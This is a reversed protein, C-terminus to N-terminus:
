TAKKVRFLDFNPEERPTEVRMDPTFEEESREEVDWATDYDFGHNKSKNKKKYDEVYRKPQKPLPERKGAVKPLFASQLVELNLRPMDYIVSKKSSGISKNASRNPKMTAFRGDDFGSSM